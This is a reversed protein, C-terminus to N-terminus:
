YNCNLIFVQGRAAGAPSQLAIRSLPMAVRSGKMHCLFFFINNSSIISEFLIAKTLVLDVFLISFCM